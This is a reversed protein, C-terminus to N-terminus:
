FSSIFLFVRLISIFILYLIFFTRTSVDVIFTELETKYIALDPTPLYAQDISVLSKNRSISGM